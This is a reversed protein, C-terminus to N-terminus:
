GTLIFLTFIRLLLTSSVVERYKIVWCSTMNLNGPDIDEIQFTSSAAASLDLVVFYTARKGM